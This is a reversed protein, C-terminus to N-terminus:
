IEHERSHSSLFSSLPSFLLSFFFVPLLFLSPLLGTPDDHSLVFCGRPDPPQPVRSQSSCFSAKQYNPDVKLWYMGKTLALFLANSLKSLFFFRSLFPSLPLSLSLSLSLSPVRRGNESTMGATFRGHSLTVPLILLLLSFLTSSDVRM